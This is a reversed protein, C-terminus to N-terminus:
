FTLGDLGEQGCKNGALQCARALLVEIDLGELYGSVIGANFTDGAGLTDVVKAPTVAANRYERGDRDLAAAGAEGWACFLDVGPCVAHVSRLLAQPESFGQSRAYHRSFLLVDVLPFLSEIDERPKEVELSCRLLPSGQRVAALMQRVNAVNRGEFHLWDFPQLDIATFAAFGYEPLDRFHTITRSGSQKSLIVSSVPMCGADAWEAASIDIGYRTLGDAVLRGEANGALTGAWRCDVGLQSLVILTNATNGGCRQLRSCCRVEDNEDPYHDVLHIIDLTANGIGLVAAM